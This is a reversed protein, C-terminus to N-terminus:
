ITLNKQYQWLKGYTWWEFLILHQFEKLDCEYCEISKSKNSNSNFSAFFVVYLFEIVRNDVNGRIDIISNDLMLDVVDKKLDFKSYLSKYVAKTYKGKSHSSFRIKKELVGRFVRKSDDLSLLEDDSMSKNYDKIVYDYIQTDDKPMSLKCYEAFLGFRSLVKDYIKDIQKQNMHWVQVHLHANDKKIGLEINAFFKINDNKTNQILRNFYNKIDNIM